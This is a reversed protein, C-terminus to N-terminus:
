CRARLARDVQAIDGTLTQIGCWRHRSCPTHQLHIAREMPAINLTRWLRM